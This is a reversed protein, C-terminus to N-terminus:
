NSSNGIFVLEAVDEFSKKVAAWAQAHASGEDAGRDSASNFVKIWQRQKKKPLKKIKAPPKNIDYPM